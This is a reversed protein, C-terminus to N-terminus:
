RAKDGSSPLLDGPSAPALLQSLADAQLELVRLLQRVAKDIEIAAANVRLAAEKSAAADARYRDREREIAAVVRDAAAERQTLGEIALRLGDLQSEIGSVTPRTKVARPAAARDVSAESVRWERGDKTGELEGARIRNRVTQQTVGLRDAAQTVPITRKANM